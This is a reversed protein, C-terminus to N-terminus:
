DNSQAAQSPHVQERVSLIAPTKDHPLRASVFLIQKWKKKEFIPTFSKYSEGKQATFLPPPFNQESKELISLSISITRSKPNSEM